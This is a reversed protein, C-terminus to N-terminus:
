AATSASGSSETPDPERGPRTAVVLTGLGIAFVLPTIPLGARGLNMVAASIAAIVAISVATLKRGRGLTEVALLSACVSLAGMDYNFGYPTILFTGCTVVFARHLGDRQRHLLWLIAAAAILTVPLQVQAAQAPSFELTRMSAFVTPMMRLFIGYWDTMVSRQYELTETLYATWSDVGFAAVSLLVLVATCVASWFFARWNRDFVLLVPILLGLQPKVTLCAFAIGALM